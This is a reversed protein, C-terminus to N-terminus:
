SIDRQGCAPCSAKMNRIGNNKEEDDREIAIDIAVRLSAPHAMHHPREQRNENGVENADNNIEDQAIRQRGIAGTAVIGHGRFESEARVAAICEPWITRLAALADLARPRVAAVAACFNRRLGM